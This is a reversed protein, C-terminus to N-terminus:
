AEPLASNEIFCHFNAYVGRKLGDLDFKVMALEYPLANECHQGVNANVVREVSVIIFKYQGMESEPIQSIPDSLDMVIEREEPLPNDHFNWPAAPTTQELPYSPTFDTGVDPGARQPWEADCFHPVPISCSEPDPNGEPEKKEPNGYLIQNMIEKNKTVKKKETRNRSRNLPTRFWDRDHFTAMRADMIKSGDIVLSRAFVLAGRAMDESHFEIGAIHLNHGNRFVVRCRRPHFDAFAERLRQNNIGDRVNEIMIMPVHDISSKLFGPHEEADM